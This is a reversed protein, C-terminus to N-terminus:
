HRGAEGQRWQQRFSKAEIPRLDRASTWAALPPALRGILGGVKGIRDGRKIFRQLLHGLRASFEYLRPRMMVAAWLKFALQESRNKAVAESKESGARPEEKIEARLHLLLEPIDIKV